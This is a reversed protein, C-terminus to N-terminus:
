SEPKKEKEERIAEIAGKIDGIITIELYESINEDDLKSQVLCGAIIVKCASIVTLLDADDPIV